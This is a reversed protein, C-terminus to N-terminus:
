QSGTSFASLRFIWQVCLCLPLCNRKGTCTMLPFLLKSFLLVVYLIPNICFISHTSVLNGTTTRSKNVTIWNLHSVKNISRIVYTQRGARVLPQNTQKTERGVRFNKGWQLRWWLRYLTEFKSRHEDSIVMSCHPNKLTGCRSNITTM